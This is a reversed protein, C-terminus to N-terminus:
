KKPPEDDNGIGLPPDLLSIDRRWSGSVAFTKGSHKEHAKFAKRLRNVHYDLSVEGEPAKDLGKPYQVCAQRLATGLRLGTTVLKQARALRLRDFASLHLGTKNPQKKKKTM